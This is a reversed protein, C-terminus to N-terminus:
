TWNAKVCGAVGGGWFGVAFAVCGVCGAGASAACAASCILGLGIVVAQHIGLDNVLCRNLGRWDMGAQVIEGSEATAQLDVVTNLTQVGDIWRQYQAVSSTPLSMTVEDISVENGDIVFAVYNLPASVEDSVALPVNVVTSGDFSAVAADDFSMTLGSRPAYDLAAVRDVADARASDSVSELLSVTESVDTVVEETRAESFDADTFTLALAGQDAAAIPVQSLPAGDVSESGSTPQIVYGATLGAVLAVAAVVATM